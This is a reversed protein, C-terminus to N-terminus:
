LLKVILVFSMAGLGLAVPEVLEREDFPPPELEVEPPPPPPLPTLNPPSRFADQPKRPSRTFLRFLEDMASTAPDVVVVVFVCCLDDSEATEPCRSRL